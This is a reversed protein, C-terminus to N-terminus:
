VYLIIQSYLFANVFVVIHYILFILTSGENQEGKYKKKTGHGRFNGVPAM